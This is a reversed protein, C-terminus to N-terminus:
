NTEPRMMVLVPGQADMRVPATALAEALLPAIWPQESNLIVLGARELADGNEGLVRLAAFFRSRLRGFHAADSTRGAFREALWLDQAALALVQFRRVEEMGERVPVKDLVGAGRLREELAAAPVRDLGLYHELAAAVDEAMWVSDDGQEMM